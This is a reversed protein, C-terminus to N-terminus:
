EMNTQHISQLNNLQSMMKMKFTLSADTKIPSVHRSRIFRLKQSSTFEKNFLGFRDTENEKQRGEDGFSSVLVQSHFHTSKIAESAQKKKNGHRNQCKKSFATQRDPISYLFPIKEQSKVTLNRIDNPNITTYKRKM